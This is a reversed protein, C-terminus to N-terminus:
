KTAYAGLHSQVGNWVWAQDEYMPATGMVATFFARGYDSGRGTQFNALGNDSPVVIMTVGWSRIAQRVAEIHAKSLSPAPGIPLSAAALIRFGRAEAGARAVTGAPGGGGAMQFPMGTIAQWPIATQTNATAFPYTALVQGPPLRPAELQFWQPVDVGQVKLPLNPALVIATPVVVIAMAVVAVAAGVRHGASSGESRAAEDRRHLFEDSAWTRTRDVVIAVMVSACLVFVADFRSQIVNDFVARHYLLSWPGWTHGSVRLSFAFTIVGLSGFFWLRRDSRWVIVGVVVLLFFGPGLYSPSPVAPGLYGGFARAAGALYQSSITGWQGVGNWLNGVSNGLGGPIDTSWVTGSLHGHGYMFFWIPYALLVVVVGLAVGLGRAAHPFRRRLEDQQWLSAYGVLLLGGVVASIAVILVAETSIFFEVAVLVALAVGIPAPRVKQRIFLEDLCGVLLPLLALCALNLWGFALQVIVLASFGYLLGGVFAAPPWRVWRQLFWFMSLATLAPILTSIVNFSVVPGFLWTVPTMVLGIAPVSTDDLLNFGGPHFQWTSFLLQHGHSLAFESWKL